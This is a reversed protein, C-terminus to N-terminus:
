KNSYKEDCYESRHVVEFNPDERCNICCYSIRSRVGPVAVAEGEVIRPYYKMDNVREIALKGFTSEADSEVVVPSEVDGSESVVYQVVVFGETGSDCLAKPYRGVPSFKKSYEYNNPSIAVPPPFNEGPCEPQTACGALM